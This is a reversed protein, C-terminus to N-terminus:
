VHRPQLNPFRKLRCSFQQLRESYGYEKQLVAHFCDEILSIEQRALGQGHNIWAMAFGSWQGTFGVVRDHLGQLFFPSAGKLADPTTPWGTQAREECLKRVGDSASSYLGHAQSM